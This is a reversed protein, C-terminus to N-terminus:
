FVMKKITVNSLSNVEDEFNQIEKEDTDDIFELLILGSPSCANSTAMHLGIRTTISCGFKSLISQFQTAEKMREPLQIGMITKSM